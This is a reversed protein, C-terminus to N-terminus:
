ITAKSEELIINWCKIRVIFYRFKSLIFRLIWNMATSQPRNKYKKIIKGEYRLITLLSPKNFTPSCTTRLNTIKWASLSMMLFLIKTRPWVFSSGSRLVQIFVSFLNQEVSYNMLGISSPSFNLCKALLFVNWLDIERLAFECYMCVMGRSDGKWEIKTRELNDLFVRVFIDDWFSPDYWFLQRYLVWNTNWFYKTILLTTQKTRRQM